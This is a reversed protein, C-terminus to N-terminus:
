EGKPTELVELFDLFHQRNHEYTGAIGMYAVAMAGKACKPFVVETHLKSAEVFTKFAELGATKQEAASEATLGFAGMWYEAFAAAEGDPSYVLMITAQSHGAGDAHRGFGTSLIALQTQLGNTAEVQQLDTIMFWFPFVVSWPGATSSLEVLEGRAALAFPEPPVPVDEMAAASEPDLRALVEHAGYVGMRVAWRFSQLLILDGGEPMVVKERAWLGKVHTDITSYLHEKLGQRQNAPVQELNDNLWNNFKAIEVANEVVGRIPESLPGASYSRAVADDDAVAAAGVVAAATLILAKSIM